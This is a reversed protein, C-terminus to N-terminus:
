GLALCLLNNTNNNSVHIMISQVLKKYNGVSIDFFVFHPEKSNESESILSKFKVTLNCYKRDVVKRCRSLDNLM